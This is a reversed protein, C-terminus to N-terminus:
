PTGGPFRVRLLRDDGERPGGRGDRNSTAVYVEGEEGVMVARLRGYEGELFRDECVARWHEGESERRLEVRHLAQGRLSAVWAVIRHTDAEEGRSIALGAPAVAPTWDVVPDLFRSDEVAGSEVPWGYNGSESLVNLEDRHLRRAEPALGTPGHDIFLVTGSAEHVAIGQSNRVGSAVIEDPLRPPGGPDGSLSSRRLIKGPVRRPDQASWPMQADGVSYLLAGSPDFALAGGGHLQGAPISSVVRRRQIEGEPSRSVRYIHSVARTGEDHRRLRARVRRVLPTIWSPLAQESDALFHGMVYVAGDDSFDPSLIIGMLGLEGEERTDLTAWPEPELGQAGVVRIRGPRETVFIRGDPAQALGWPTELGGALEEVDPEPLAPMCAGLDSPISPDMRVEQGEPGGEAGCGALLTVLFLIGAAAPMRRSASGGATVTLTM